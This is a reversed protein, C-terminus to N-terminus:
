LFSTQLSAHENALLILDDFIVRPRDTKGEAIESKSTRVVVGTMECKRYHQEIYGTILKRNPECTIVHGGYEFGLTNTKQNGRRVFGVLKVHQGDQLEPLVPEGPDEEPAFIEKSDIDITEQSVMGNFQYGISVTRRDTVVTAISRLIKDPCASFIKVEDLTVTIGNGKDNVLLAKGTNMNIQKLDLSKKNSITDLHQAIKIVAQLNIFAQKYIDQLDKEAFKKDAALTGYRTAYASMGKAVAGTVIGGAYGIAPLLLEWCGERTRVPFNLSKEKAFEGDQAKIFFTLAERTGKVINEVSDIDITGNVISDDDVRIFGTNDEYTHTQLSM